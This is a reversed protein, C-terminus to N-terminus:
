ERSFLQELGLRFTTAPRFRFQEVKKKLRKARPSPRPLLPCARAHADDPGRAFCAAEPQRRALEHPSRSRALSPTADRRPRRTVQRRNVGRPTRRDRIPSEACRGAEGAEKFRAFRCLADLRSQERKIRIM